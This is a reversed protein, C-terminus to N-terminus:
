IGRLCEKCPGLPAAVVLCLVILSFCSTTASKMIGERKSCCGVFAVARENMCYTCRWEGERGGECEVGVPVSFGHGRLEVFGQFPMLQHDRGHQGEQHREEHNELVLLRGLVDVWTRREASSRDAQSFRLV